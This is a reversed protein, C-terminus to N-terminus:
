NKKKRKFNNYSDIFDSAFMTGQIEYGRQSYHVKDRAIVAAYEGNPSICAAGGMRTYLDWVPLNNLEMLAISYDTIFPNPRGKRFMSPPPTMVLITADKNLKRINAVFEKLQYIYESVSLKGFSENTGFSLIILDPNLIPLQKFFLPYKNYDSLKAGNVGITHYVIGPKDNEVVFGNLNYMASKKDPLITIRNIGLDSTYSSYYPKSILNVYSLTDDTLELKVKQTKPTAKVGSVGIKLKQGPKIMNSKMGNAKKIQTVSIKYKRSIVSLSEGKKVTHYRIEKSPSSAAPAASVLPLASVTMKFHPEKNPYIIKIHNFEYKDETSLQLAFDDSSTYLAIGSLGIGVDAVPYVNLLSQWTVNSVYRISRTGNSRLLSYPFTFGYGGNGFVNQLAERITNTFFDAQIHSDGIHVINVKGQKTKELNYLKTFVSTLLEQNAFFNNASGVNGKADNEAWSSPCAITILLLLILIKLIKKYLMM